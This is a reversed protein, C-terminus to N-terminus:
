LASEPYFTNSDQVSVRSVETKAVKRALGLIRVGHPYPALVLITLDGYEIM